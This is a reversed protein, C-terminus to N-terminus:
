GAFRATAVIQAVLGAMTARLDRVPKLNALAAAAHPRLFAARALHGAGM